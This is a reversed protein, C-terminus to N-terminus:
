VDTSCDDQIGEDPSERQSNQAAGIIGDPQQVIKSDQEEGNDLGEEDAERLPGWTRKLVDIQAEHLPNRIVNGYMEVEASYKPLGFDSPYQITQGAAAFRPLTRASTAAATSHLNAYHHQEEAAVPLPRHHTQPSYFGGRAAAAAAPATGNFRNLLDRHTVIPSTDKNNHSQMFYQDQGAVTSSHPVPPPYLADASLRNTYLHPFNNGDKPMQYRAGNIVITDDREAKNKEEKEDEDEDDDDVDDHSTLAATVTATRQQHHQLDPKRDVSVPIMTAASASNANNSHFFKRKAVFALILFSLVIAVFAFAVAIGAIEGSELSAVGGVFFGVQKTYTFDFNFYM